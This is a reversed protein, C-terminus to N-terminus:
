QWLVAVLVNVTALGGAVHFWRKVEAAPRPRAALAAAALVVLAIGLKVATKAYNVELDDAERVGVLAVGTVLQVVAAQLVRRTAFDRQQRLQLLFVGVIAAMGLLHVTLLCLRIVDLM